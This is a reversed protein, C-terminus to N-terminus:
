LCELSGFCYSTDKPFSVNAIFRSRQTNDAFAVLVRSDALKVDNTIWKFVSTMYNYPRPCKQNCRFRWCKLKNACGKVIIIPPDKAEAKLRDVRSLGTAPVSRHSKGVEEPTISDSGGRGESRRRRKGSTQEGEGGRRRRQGRKPSRTTSSPGPTEQQVERRRNQTETEANSPTTITPDQSESVSRRTSSGVSPPLIQENKYNVTWEGSNGYRGADKHFLLFYVATGDIEVYYLGNYDVKGPVKHWTDSEDQYYIWEWCIYPFANKPNNDFWVEVEFSNKKFCNRPPSLFRDASTDHLTWEETAYQSKALSELMLTMKIAQKSNHESIRTTPLHQLGLNQYGEKRAYYQIACEKRLLKYHTIQSQLDKPNSEYLTMLQTQIVDLRKRLDEQNM